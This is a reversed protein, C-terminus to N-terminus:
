IHILSLIVRAGRARVDGLAALCAAITKEENLVPVVIALSM